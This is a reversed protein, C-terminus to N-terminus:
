DGEIILVDSDKLKTIDVNGYYKLKPFRRKLERVAIKM